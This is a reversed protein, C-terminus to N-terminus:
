RRRGHPRKIGGSSGRKQKAERNRKDSEEKQAKGQESQIIDFMELILPDQDM